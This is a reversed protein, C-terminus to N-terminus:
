FSLCVGLMVGPSDLHLDLGSRSMTLYPLIGIYPRIEGKPVRLLLVVPAYEYDFAGGTEVAELELSWDDYGFWRFDNLWYGLGDRTWLDGPPDTQELSWSSSKLGSEHGARAVGPAVYLSTAILTLTLIPLRKWLKM